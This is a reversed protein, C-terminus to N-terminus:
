SFEVGHVGSSIRDEDGAAAGTDAATEGFGEVFEAIVDDDGAAAFLHEIFCDGGIGAHGGDYEVDFVGGADAGEGGIEDGVEGGEVGDDVVGADHAGFVKESLGFVQGVGFGDDGGVKETGNAESRRKERMKLLLGM